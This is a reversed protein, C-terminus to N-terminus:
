GWANRIEEPTKGSARLTRLSVADERKALRRGQADTVLPCHFFAPGPLDLARYLLLQRFTSTILDAGRVVESIRMAADDAVCALQYSPLDDKRWVLFDGFDAGAIARQEGQRRDEFGLTEGDPVRFRWNLGARPRDASVHRCTGPYLPEDDGTHPAGLARQVDHRSCTCPFIHGSARLREFADVYSEQRMSQDYPAFSGGVDPGESWEFGFWRLDEVMATVFESRCRARDLDDNRLILTGGAAEARRQATWFTRAHGLHLLGTPSPALRGRYM